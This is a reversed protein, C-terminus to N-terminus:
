IILHIGRSDVKIEKVGRGNVTLAATAKVGQRGLIRVLESAVEGLTMDSKVPTYSAAVGSRDRISAALATIASVKEVKM